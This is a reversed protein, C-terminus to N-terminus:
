LQLPPRLHLASPVLPSSLFPMHGRGGISIATPPPRSLLVRRFRSRRASKKKSVPSAPSNHSRVHNIKRPERGREPTFRVHGKAARIDAKSGFCVDAVARFRAM